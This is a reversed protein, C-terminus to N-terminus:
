ITKPFEKLQKKLKQQHQLQAYHNLRQMMMTVQTKLTSILQIRLSSERISYMLMVAVWTDQSDGHRQIQLTVQRHIRVRTLHLVMVMCQQVQVMSGAMVM